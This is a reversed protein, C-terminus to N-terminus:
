KTNKIIKSHYPVNRIPKMMEDRVYFIIQGMNQPGM